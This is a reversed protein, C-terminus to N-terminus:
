VAAAYDVKVENSLLSIIKDRIAKADEKDLFAEHSCFTFDMEGKFTSVIATNPNKWPFAVNPSYITEVEFSNYQEPIALRGMNSLTVDHTGASSKLYKVIKEVSFYESMMLSGRGDLGAIKTDLDEKLKKAKTWFDTGSQDLTVEVTPAMAFMMDQRIEPVFKRIDVPTVANGKAQEGKVERFAELFAVCLAAHVTIGANKCGATVVAASEANLKWHLMYSNGAPPIYRESKSRLFWSAMVSLLRVKILKGISYRESLLEPISSFPLYDDLKKAPDDLLSLIESMLTSISRGDCICHPCVLLLESVAAGKLWIVRALPANRENFPRSWETESENKWDDDGQREVVRVPIASLSDCSILHPVKKYDEKIVAHLAPHKYQIKALASRLNEPSFSGRIKATFVCNLSTAADVYMIREGTIMKRKM